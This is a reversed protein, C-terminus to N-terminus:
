IVDSVNAPTGEISHVLGSKADAGIHVKMRFFWQNGKVFSLVLLLGIHEELGSPYQFAGDGSEL